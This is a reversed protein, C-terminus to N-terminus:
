KDPFLVQYSPPSDDIVRSNNTQSNNNMRGAFLLTHRRHDQEITYIIQSEELRISNNPM